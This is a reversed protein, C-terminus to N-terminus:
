GVIGSGSELTVKLNGSADLELYGIQGDVTYTPASAHYRGKAEIAM